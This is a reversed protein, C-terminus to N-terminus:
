FISKNQERSISDHVDRHKYHANDVLLKECHDFREKFRM